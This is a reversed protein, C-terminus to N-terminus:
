SGMRAKARPRKTAEEISLADELGCGILVLTGAFTVWLWGCRVSCSGLTMEDEDSIYESAEAETSVDSEWQRGM